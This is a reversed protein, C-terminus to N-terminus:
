PLDSGCRPCDTADTWHNCGVCHHLETAEPRNSMNPHPGVPPVSFVRAGELERLRLLEATCYHLADLLEDLAESIMSRPDHNIKWAGYHQLGAELRTLLADHIQREGDPLKQIREAIEPVTNASM